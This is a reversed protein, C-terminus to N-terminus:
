YTFAAQTYFAHPRNLNNQDIYQYEFKLAARNIFDWRLGLTHRTVDVVQPGYFPDGEAADLRDFRYYPKLTNIQYGAQLYIGRTVFRGSSLRDEHRIQMAESLIELNDRLYILHLGTILENIEGNRAPVGVDPPITDSYVNAGFRLGPVAVPALSFVGYVAKSGNLDQNDVTDTYKRGRGNAVGLNYHFDLVSLPQYGYMELGVSHIPLVSGGDHFRFLEPRLV